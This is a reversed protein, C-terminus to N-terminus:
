RRGRGKLRLPEGLIGAAASTAEEFSGAPMSSRKGVSWRWEGDLGWVIGIRDGGSDKIWYLSQADLARVLDAM